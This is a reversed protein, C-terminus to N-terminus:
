GRSGVHYSPLVRESLFADLKLALEEYPDPTLAIAASALILSLEDFSVLTVESFTMAGTVASSLQASSFSGISDNDSPQSFQARSAVTSRHPLVASAALDRVTKDAGSPHGEQGHGLVGRWLWEDDLALSARALATAEAHEATVAKLLARQERPLM